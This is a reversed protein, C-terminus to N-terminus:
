YPRRAPEPSSAAPAAASGGGGQCPQSASAAARAEAAGLASQEQTSLGNGTIESLGGSSEVIKVNEATSGCSTDSFVTHGEADVCRFVQAHSEASIVLASVVFVTAIAKMDDGIFHL